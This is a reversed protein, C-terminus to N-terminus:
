AQGEPEEQLLIRLNERHAKRQPDSVFRRLRRMVSAAALMNEDAYYQHQNAFMKDLAVPGAINRAMMIELISKISDVLAIETDSLTYDEAM